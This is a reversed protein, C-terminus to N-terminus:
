DPLACSIRALRPQGSAEAESSLWVTGDDMIAVGEGQVEQLPRLDFILPAVEGQGVLAAASYIYLAGYTRIAVHRGDPTASAGTVRNLRGGPEAMLVRVRELMAHGRAAPRRAAGEYRYLAVPGDDGKTVIFLDGGPLIFMSEANHAGDPYRANLVRAQVSAAGSLQPEPVEHIAIDERSGNNDGIDAIYLCTGAACPAREIDEWDVPDAGTVAVRNLLAGDTRVAYLEANNGRDNHTWLVEADRSSTALGSTEHVVDPLRTAPQVTRCTDVAVVSGGPSGHIDCATCLLIPFTLLFAHLVDRRM